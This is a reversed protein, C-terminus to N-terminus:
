QKPVRRSIREKVRVDGSGLISSMRAGAGWRLQGDQQHGCDAASPTEAEDDSGHTVQRLLPATQRVVSYPLAPVDPCAPGRSLVGKDKQDQGFQGRRQSTGRHFLLGQTPQTAGGYPLGGPTASHPRIQFLCRQLHLQLLARSILSDQKLLARLGIVATRTLPLFPSLASLCSPPCTIHSASPQLSTDALCPLQHGGTLCPVRDGEQTKEERSPALGAM